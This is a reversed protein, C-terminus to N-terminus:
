RSAARSVAGGLRSEDTGDGALAGGDVTLHVPYRFGAKSAKECRQRPGHRQGTHLEFVAAVHDTERWWPAVSVAVSMVSRAAPRSIQFGSSTKVGNRQRGYGADKVPFGYATGRM